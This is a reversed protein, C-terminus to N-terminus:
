QSTMEAYWDKKEPLYGQIEQGVFRELGPTVFYHNGKRRIVKLVQFVELDVAANKGVTFIIDDEYAEGSKLIHALTQAPTRRKSSEETIMAHLSRVNTKGESGVVVYSPRSCGRCLRWGEFREHKFVVAIGANCEPCKATIM